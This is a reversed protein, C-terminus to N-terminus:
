LEANQIDELVGLLIGPEVPKVLHVDIGAERSQRRDLEQGFGTVAVLRVNSLGPFQRVRRAFEYGDIGAMGIDLLIVHPKFTVATELGSSGSFETRVAYEKAQLMMGLLKAADVNDDVVLIRLCAGPRSVAGATKRSSDPAEVGPLRVTFESGRGPGDSAAKVTGGHMEVLSRVVALGIGMGGRSHDLSRDAQSFLTFLNKLMEPAIGEGTDRVRLIAKDGKRSLSLVVEGDPPTYKCANTLLNTIVQEIRVPDADIWVPKDPLASELRECGTRDSMRTVEVARRAVERLDLIERNLRVKGSTIRSAELLDDLLSSMVHVQRKLKDCVDQVVPYHLDGESILETAVRISALPNRLEHSLIALFHDKQENVAALQQTKLSLESAKHRYRAESQKLKEEAQKRETLDRVIKAYGQWEEAKMATTVGHGWFRTGDKRLHWRDDDSAGNEAAKELEQDPIGQRQDEATFLRHFTRGIIEEDTWGFLNGAGRNWSVIRGQRDMMFFGYDEAADLMLQFRQEAMDRPYAGPALDATVEKRKPEDEKVGSVEGGATHRPLRSM